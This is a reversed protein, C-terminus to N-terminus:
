SAPKWLGILNDDPDRIWAFAGQGPVETEPIMVQGGLQQVKELQTTIDEVQIYIMVYHHPEHGLATLYGAIGDPSGTDIKKSFPGYDSTQWDFLQTYFANSKERDRCGIDFHIVPHAM